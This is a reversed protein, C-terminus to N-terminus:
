DGRPSVLGLRMSEEHNLQRWTDRPDGDLAVELGIDSYLFRNAGISYAGMYTHAICAVEQVFIVADSYTDLFPKLNELQDPTVYNSMMGTVYNM